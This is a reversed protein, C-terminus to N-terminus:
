PKPEFGLRRLGEAASVKSPRYGQGIQQIPPPKCPWTFLFYTGLAVIFGLHYTWVVLLSQVRLVKLFGFVAAGGLCVLGLSALQYGPGQWDPFALLFFAQVAWGSFLLPIAGM